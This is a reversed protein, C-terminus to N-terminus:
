RVSIQGLVVRDVGPVKRVQTAFEWADEAEAVAGDITVIGYQVRATLDGFRTQGSRVVEVATAVDQKPTVPVAPSPITPYQPPGEPAPPPPAPIPSYASDTRAPLLALATTTPQLLLPIPPLEPAVPTYRQVVVRGNPRPDNQAVRNVPAVSAVPMERAKLREAIKQKLPDEVAPVWASVKADSLGPVVRLLQRIRAAEDQSAVPGGVVAVGDVVSVILSRSKLVADANLVTQVRQTLDADTTVRTPPEFGRASPALLVLTCFVKVRFRALTYRM